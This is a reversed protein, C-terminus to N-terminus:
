KCFIQIGQSFSYFCIFFLTTENKNIVYFPRDIKIQREDLMVGNKVLQQHGIHVGDFNGIAACIEDPLKNFKKNKIYITEM